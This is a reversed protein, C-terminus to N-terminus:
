RKTREYFLQKESLETLLLLPQRGFCIASHSETPDLAKLLCFGRWTRPYPFPLM